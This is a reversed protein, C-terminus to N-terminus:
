SKWGWITKATSNLIDSRVTMIAVGLFIFTLGFWANPTLTEGLFIVSIAVGIPVRLYAQATTSVSGLTRILRFYIVLALATSFISLCGLALMSNLSPRITWPHEFALSIPVLIAAGCMLSGAAPTMPDLDKLSRGYIAAGANCLAALLIALQASLVNGAARITDLGVILCVGFLGILTGFLRYTGSSDPHRSALTIFSTFIPTTSALVTALGAGVSQQAWALLAFPTVSNMFSQILFRRWTALGLRLTLGRAALIFSLILSAIITRAAILTIPPITAIGVRILAYSMGWLAALVFLLGIEVGYATRNRSTHYYSLTMNESKPFKQCTHLRSLRSIKAYRCVIISRGAGYNPSNVTM